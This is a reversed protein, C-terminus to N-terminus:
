RRLGGVEDDNAPADDTARRGVKGLASTQSGDDDLFTWGQRREGRGHGGARKAQLEVVRFLHIEDPLTDREEVLHLLTGVESEFVLAVQEDRPCRITCALLLLQDGGLSRPAQRIDFHEVARLRTSAKGVQGAVHDVRAETLIIAPELRTSEGELQRPQATGGKLGANGRGVEDPVAIPDAADRGCASRDLGLSSHDGGPWQRPWKGTSRM